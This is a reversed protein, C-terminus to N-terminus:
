VIEELVEKAMVREMMERATENLDSCLVKEIADHREARKVNYLKLLNNLCRRIKQDITFRANCNEMIFGYLIARTIIETEYFDQETWERLREGLIDMTKKYYVEKVYNMTKPLTYIAIYLERMRDNNECLTLETAIELCFCMLPTENPFRERISYKQYLVLHQAVVLLLDEKTRFCNNLSGAGVGAESAVMKNTTNFFGKGLYLSIGARIIRQRASLGDAVIAM